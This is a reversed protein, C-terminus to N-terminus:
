FTTIQLHLGLREASAQLAAVLDDIRADPLRESPGQLGVAARAPADTHLIPVAFARVGDYRENDNIAWGRDRVQELEALLRARDVITHDTFRFLEGHAEVLTSLDQGSFALIAKGMASVHWPIRTGLARSFRLPMDSEVQLVMITDDGDLVGLASTEHTVEALLELESRAAAIGYRRAAAAFLLLSDPGIRYRESTADNALLRERVLTALIRHTTTTNLDVARAVDSLTMPTDTRAFLRLIAIGREIAQTGTKRGTDGDATM